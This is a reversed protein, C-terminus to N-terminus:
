VKCWYTVKQFKSRVAMGGPILFSTGRRYTRKAKKKKSQDCYKQCFISSVAGISPPCEVISKTSGGDSSKIQAKHKSTTSSGCFQELPFFLKQLVQIKAAKGFLASHGTQLHGAEIEERCELLLIPFITFLKFTFHKNLVWDCRVVINTTPNTKKM